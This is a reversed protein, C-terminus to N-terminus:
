RRGRRSRDRRRRVGFGEEFDALKVCIISRDLSSVTLNLHIKDFKELIHKIISGGWSLMVVELLKITEM